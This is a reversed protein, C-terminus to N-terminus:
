ALATVPLRSRGKGDAGRRVTSAVKLACPEGTSLEDFRVDQSERTRTPRGAHIADHCDHCVILTKRKRPIM